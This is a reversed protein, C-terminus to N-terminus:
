QNEPFRKSYLAHMQTVLRDHDPNGRDRLAEDHKKRFESIQQDLDGMNVEPRPSGKLARDGMMDKGVRGMFRIMAPHNGLGSEELYKNFEPDGYKHMTAQATKAFGEYQGGHERMLDTQLKARESRKATEWAQHRELNTSVYAKHLNAAQRKSLGNQHAWSRFAEEATEDYFNQPLDAPKEFAYDKAEKPRVAGYWRDWAEQDDDSKPVPVKESGLLKELSLYNKGLNEYDPKGDVYFKEPLWEPRADGNAEGNAHGNPAGEQAEGEQTEPQPTGGATLFTAGTDESM